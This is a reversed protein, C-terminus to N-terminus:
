AKKKKKGTRGAPKALLARAIERRHLAPEGLLNYTQRSTRTHLSLPHERSYSIGSIARHGLNCVQWYAESAVAKALHVSGAAPQNTDLKWLAEYTTWRAAEAQNIMQLIMDQVRQFRGIPQAFQIRVRSYEVAIDFAARCGGAQYACLVPAAKLMAKELAPWAADKKGILNASPVRVADLKVEFIRGAMYGELQRVSVGPAKRDVLFLSLGKEPDQGKPGTRAAVLLHTAALADPTFLKLGNLVFDRGKRAASAKITRPTWGYETETLALTLVMNGQAAEPLLRKKQEEGAAELLALSSLVATSFLPGPLPAAGLTEFLVGASTFPYGVGGYAEPILIGLWGMDVMKRWLDETMGTASDHLAHLADKPLDRDLFNKATTKLITESETLKLDLSM